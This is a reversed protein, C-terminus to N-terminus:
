QHPRLHHLTGGAMRPPTSSEEDVQAKGKRTANEPLPSKSSRPRSRHLTPVLFSLKDKPMLLRKGQQTGLTSISGRTLRLQSLDNVSRFGMQRLSM